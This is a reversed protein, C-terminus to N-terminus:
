IPGYMYKSHDIRTLAGTTAESWALPSEELIKPSQATDRALISLFGEWLLVGIMRQIMM